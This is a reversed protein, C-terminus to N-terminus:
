APAPEYEPIRTIFETVPRTTKVVDDGPRGHGNACNVRIIGKPVAANARIPVGRFEEGDELLLRDFDETNLEYLLIAASCTKAHDKSAADMSRYFDANTM